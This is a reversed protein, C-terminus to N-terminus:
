VTPDKCPLILRVNVKDDNRAKVSSFEEESVLFRKVKEEGKIGEGCVCIDGGTTSYAHSKFRLLRSEGRCIISGWLSKLKRIQLMKIGKPQKEILLNFLDSPGIYIREWKPIFLCTFVGYSLREYSSSGPKTQGTTHSCPTFTEM